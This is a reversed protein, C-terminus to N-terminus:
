TVLDPRLFYRQNWNSRRRMSNGRHVLAAVALIVAGAVIHAWLVWHAPLKAMLLVMLFLGVVFSMIVFRKAQRVRNFLFLDERYETDTSNTRRQAADLEEQLSDNRSKLLDKTYSNANKTSTMFAQKVADNSWTALVPQMVVHGDAGMNAFHEVPKFISVVTVFLMALAAGAAGIALVPRLQLYAKHRFFYVSYFGAVTVATLALMGYLQVEQEFRLRRAMKVSTDARQLAMQEKRLNGVLSSSARASDDNKYSAIVNIFNQGLDENGPAKAADVLRDHDIVWYKEVLYLFFYSGIQQAWVMGVSTQEGYVCYKLFTLQIYLREAAVAKGNGDKSIKVAGKMIDGNDKMSYERMLNIFTLLDAHQDHLQAIETFLPLRTYSADSQILGRLDKEYPTEQHTLLQALTPRIADTTASCTINTVNNATNVTYWQSRADTSPLAKVYNVINVKLTDDITTTSVFHAADVFQQSKMLDQPGRGTNTSM